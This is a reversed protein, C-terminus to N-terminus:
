NLFIPDTLPNIGIHALLERATDNIQTAFDIAERKEEWHVRSVGNVSNVVVVAHFGNESCPTTGVNVNIPGQLTANFIKRAVEGATGVRHLSVETPPQDYSLQEPVESIQYSVVRTTTAQVVSTKGCDACHFFRGGTEHSAVANHGCALIIATNM